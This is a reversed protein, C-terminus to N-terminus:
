LQSSAGRPGVPSDVPDGQALARAGASSSCVCRLPTLLSFYIPLPLYLNPVLYCPSISPTLLLIGKRGGVGLEGRPALLPHLREKKNEKEKRRSWKRGPCIDGPWKGVPSVRLLVWSQHEWTVPVHSPSAEKLFDQHCTALWEVCLGRSTGLTNLMHLSILNQSSPFMIMQMYNSTTLPSTILCPILPNILLLLISSLLCISSCISFSGSLSILETHFTLALFHLFGCKFNSKVSSLTSHPVRRGPLSTCVSWTFRKERCRADKPRFIPGIVVSGSEVIQPKM